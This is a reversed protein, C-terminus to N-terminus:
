GVRLRRTRSKGDVHDTDAVAVFVRYTGTRRVRARMSYKSRAVGNVPTHAVLTTTKITKWGSSTRRQLSAVKGDHAPTVVGRFRVREGRSPTKDSVALSVRPAVSVIVEPSTTKGKIKVTARYKTNVGPTRTFSYNGSADSTTVAVQKFGATYPAVQEELEVTVGANGTGTVQGSITTAAGYVVKLPKAAITVTNNSQQATVPAALALVLVFSAFFVRKM